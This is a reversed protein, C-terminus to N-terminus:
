NKYKGLYKRNAGFHEVGQKITVQLSLYVNIERVHVQVKTGVNIKAQKGM